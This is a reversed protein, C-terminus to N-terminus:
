SADWEMDTSARDDRFTALAGHGGSFETLLIEVEDDGRVCVAFSLSGEVEVVADGDLLFGGRFDHKLVCVAFEAHVAFEVKIRTNFDAGDSKEVILSIGLLCADGGGTSILASDLELNVRLFLCELSM